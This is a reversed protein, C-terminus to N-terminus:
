LGSLHHKNKAMQLCPAPWTRPRFQESSADFGLMWVGLDRRAESNCEPIKRQVSPTYAPDGKSACGQAHLICCASDVHLQM